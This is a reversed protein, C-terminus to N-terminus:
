FYVIHPTCQMMRKIKPVMRTTAFCNIKIQFWPQLVLFIKILFVTNAIVTGM